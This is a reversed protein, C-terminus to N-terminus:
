IHIEEFMPLYCERGDSIIAEYIESVTADTFEGRAIAASIGAETYPATLGPVEAAITDQSSCSELVEACAKLYAHGAKGPAHAEISPNSDPDQHIIIDAVHPM